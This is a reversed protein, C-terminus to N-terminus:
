KQYGIIDYLLQGILLSLVVSVVTAILVVTNKKTQKTSIKIIGYCLLVLGILLIYFVRGSYIMQLGWLIGGILGAIICGFISGIVTRPKIKKDEVEREVAIYQDGIIENVKESSFITSSTVNKIFSVDVGRSGLMETEKRIRTIENEVIRKQELRKTLTEMGGKRNIVIMLAEQAELSYGERDSYTNMLEEDTYPEYQSVFDEITFM